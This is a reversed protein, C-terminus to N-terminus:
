ALKALNSRSKEPLQFVGNVMPVAVGQAVKILDLVPQAKQAAEGGGVGLGSPRFPEDRHGALKALTAADVSAPRAGGAPAAELKALRELVPAMLKTMKEAKEDDSEKSYGESKLEDDHVGNHKAGLEVAKDHIAQVHEMNKGSVSKALEDKSLGKMLENLEALLKQMKDVTDEEPELEAVEEQVMLALVEGAMSRVEALMAPIPSEDGESAAEYEADKTCSDLAAVVQALSSVGWMGKALRTGGEKAASIKVFAAGLEARTAKLKEVKDAGAGKKLGQTALLADMKTLLDAFLVLAKEAPQGIGFKKKAAEIKAGITKQDAASYEARNKANGWRSAANRVHAADNIPYKKNKEDAFPGNGHEAKARAKDAVSTDERAAVKKFAVEETVGDAKVMTFTSGPICPLDVLSFESPKATYRKLMPNQPDTWKKGLHYGGGISFGTLVGEKVANWAADDTVKVCLEFQKHLDNFGIPEAIKGVAEAKHMLRINGYSKGGSAAYANDSWEQVLVKSTAYDLIENTRDPVEAAGVGYM